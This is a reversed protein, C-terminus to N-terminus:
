SNPKRKMNMSNPTGQESYKSTVKTPQTTKRHSNSLLESNVKTKKPAKSPSHPLPPSILANVTSSRREDDSTVSSLRRRYQEDYIEPRIHPKKPTKPCDFINFEQIKQTPSGIADMKVDVKTEVKVTVPNPKSVVMEVSSKRTLCLVLEKRNDFGPPFLSKISPVSSVKSESKQVIEAKAVKKASIKDLHASKKHKRQLKKPLEQILSPAAVADLKKGLALRTLKVYCPKLQVQSSRRVKAASPRRFVNKLISAKRMRSKPDAANTLYAGSNVFRLKPIPERSESVPSMEGNEFSEAEKVLIKAREEPDM